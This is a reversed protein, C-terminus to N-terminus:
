MESDMVGGTESGTTHTHVKDTSQETSQPEYMPAIM